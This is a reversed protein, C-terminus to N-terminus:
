QALAACTLLSGLPGEEICRSLLAQAEAPRGAQPLKATSGVLWVEVEIIGRHLLRWALWVCTVASCVHMPAGM